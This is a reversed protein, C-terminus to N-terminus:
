TFTVYRVYRFDINPWKEFSAFNDEECDGIRLRATHYDFPFLVKLSFHWLRM